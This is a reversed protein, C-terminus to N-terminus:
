RKFFVSFTSGVNKQSQVQIRGGANEVMKKVMYLGVGSGEVHDHLRGFMTFLKQDRTLDMGLGNDQVTLVTYEAEPKCSIRIEPKRDPARYKIANSLLNYVVSRLNKISFSIGPCAGTDIDLQVDASKLQDSIDLLVERIVDSIDILVAEQNHEKQLKTVETLHDITRKFREISDQIMGTVGELGEAALLEHPLSQILIRMLGEINTIPAKLDHSAAYIFNDLDVNIRILQENAISLEQAMAKAQLASKEVTRRAEVQETVDSVLTYFGEVQGNRIDPVYSTSIYKVFDERYPMRSEFNLREGALARAIYGKVGQYAKEGVVERVPRGLLDAPNQNFWAEYAKNAFRYKEEKDLYGILVPLADTILLLREASQEVAKRAEVQETVEYVFIIIGDVQGAEDRRAQLTYNFYRDEIPGDEYRAVPILEEKKEFTKGTRYVHRLADAFPHAALEHLAEGLLPNGLLTRGPLLQQYAPNVFEYRFDAGSLICIPAAAQTFLQQLRNRESEIEAKALQLEQTRDAVRIELERNLIQLADQAQLLEENIARLEENSASVENNAEALQNYLKRLERESKEVQNRAVVLETVEVAVNFVGLLDGQGNYLPQYIFNYYNTELKGARLMRAPTEKGIFPIGTTYVERILRDFDQGELEPLAQMLPKGLVQESTRGWIRCMFPNAMAIVQDTGKYLSMAVPAQDLLAQLLSRQLQAEALAAGESQQSTKAPATADQDAADQQQRQQIRETIDELKHIIYLVNGASDLVPTNSPLWYKELAGAQGPQTVDYRQHGMQHPQKRDLVWELSRRLNDSANLDPHAAHAPFVDSLSKGQIDKRAKYTAKLYADSATLIILDPSLILYLDPVSEFVQLM